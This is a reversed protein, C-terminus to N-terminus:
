IMKVKSNNVKKDILWRVGNVRVGGLHVAQGEVRVGLEDQGRTRGVLGDSEPIEPIQFEFQVGELRVLVLDELYAKSKLIIIIIMKIM